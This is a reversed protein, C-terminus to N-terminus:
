RVLRTNKAGAALGASVVRVCIDAPRTAPLDFLPRLALQGRSAFDGRIRACPLTLPRDSLPAQSAQEAHRVAAEQSDKSASPRRRCSALCGEQRAPRQLEDDPADEPTM